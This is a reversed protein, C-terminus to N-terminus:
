FDSDVTAGQETRTGSSMSNGALDKIGNPPTWSTTTPATVTGLETTSTFAGLTITVTNGNTLVMTAPVSITSKIYGNAVGFDVNGLGVTTTGSKISKINDNGKGAGKDFEVSLSRSSGDWGTLVTAPNISESFTYTIRDGSDIRGPTGAGNTAQIDTATPATRDWTVTSLDSGTAAASANGAADTAAGGPVTITVTGDTSMGGVAVNYTTGDGTVAVTKTGGATGGVTVDPGTFGSVPETFTVTFTIPSTNTTSGQGSARTITAGPATTDYTVSATSSAASPNGLADSVAGQKVQAVVTGDSTMGSVAVNYTTGSGTVAVSKTGTATGSIAVDGGDFGTVAEDFTVTYHITATNTSAGQGAARSITATPGTRDVSVSNDTSTSAASRNGAADTAVGEALAATVTGSGTTGSIAVDYTTGNGASSVTATRTGAATGGITVDAATFDTVPKNFVVAFHVTSGNTPDAQAAAQNVTVTLASADIQFAKSTATTNNGAEDSQSAVATYSGDAVNSFTVTWTGDSNVTAPLPDGATAGDQVLQVPVAAIDGAARGYTGTITATRSNSLAPPSSTVTVAPATTDQEAAAQTTASVAQASTTWGGLLAAVTFQHTTSPALGTVDCALVDAGVTCLVHGDAATVQYGSPQTGTPANWIVRISTSSTAVAQVASPANLTGTTASGTGRGTASWHAHATGPALAIPASVLCLAVIARSASRTM